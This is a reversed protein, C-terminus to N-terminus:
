IYSKFSMTQVRVFCCPLKGSRYWSGLTWPTPFFSHKVYTNFDSIKLKCKLLTKLYMAILEGNQNSNEVPSGMWHSPPEPLVTHSPPNSFKMGAYNEKQSVETLFASKKLHM